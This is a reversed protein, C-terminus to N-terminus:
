PSWVCASGVRIYVSSGEILAFDAGGYGSVASEWWGNKKRSITPAGGCDTGLGGLATLSTFDTLGGPWVVHNGGASLNITPGEAPTEGVKVLGDVLAAEIEVPLDNVGMQTGYLIYSNDLTLNSIGEGVASVTLTALVAPSGSLINPCVGEGCTVLAGFTAVGEENKIDKLPILTVGAPSTRLDVADVQIIEENFSLELQFGASESVNNLVVEIAGSDGVKTLELSAPDFYIQPTTQAAVGAQAGVLLVAGVLILFLNKKPM